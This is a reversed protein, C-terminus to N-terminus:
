RRPKKPMPQESGAGAMMGKYDGGKYRNAMAREMDSRFPSKEETPESPLEGEEKGEIEVEVGGEDQAEQGTLHEMAEMEPTEEAEHEPSPDPAKGDKEHAMEMIISKVMSRLQKLSDIKEKM